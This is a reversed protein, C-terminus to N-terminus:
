CHGRNSGTSGSDAQTNRLDSGHRAEWMRRKNEAPTVPDLHYPNVCKPVRCLHDLELGDPISGVHYLYSWQHALQITSYAVNFVGYGGNPTLGETWLWCPGLDPAYDPIPGAEIKSEFRAVDDGKILSTVLPDGHRKWRLYHKSCWGRATVPSDCGTIACVKPHVILVHLADGAFRWRQYHMNCWGRASKKRECGDVSCIRDTM